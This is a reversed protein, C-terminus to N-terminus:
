TDSWRRNFTILRNLTYRRRPLSPFGIDIVGRFSSHRFMVLLTWIDTGCSENVEFLRIKFSMSHSQNPHLLGHPFIAIVVAYRFGEDGGREKVGANIFGDYLMGKGRVIGLGTFVGM